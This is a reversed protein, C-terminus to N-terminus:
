LSRRSNDFCHRGPSQICEGGSGHPMQIDDTRQLTAFFSLLEETVVDPRKIPFFHDADKVIKQQSKSSLALLEAQSNALHRYMEAQKRKMELNDATLVLLPIDGLTGQGEDNNVLAKVEEVAERSYVKNYSMMDTIEAIEKPVSDGTKALLRLRSLIRLVGTVSLFRAVASAITNQSLLSKRDKYFSPSTGDLTVVGAVLEPYRQAFQVAETAGLSHGVFVFPGTEGSKGLLERLDENVQKMTRPRSTSDSWGYGSRDYVLARTEEALRIFTPYFNGLAFGMGNGCSFLIAPSGKGKGYIHMRGDGVRILKGPPPNSKLEIGKLIHHYVTSLALFGLLTHVVKFFM